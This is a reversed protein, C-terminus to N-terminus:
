HRCLSAQKNVDYAVKDVLSSGPFFTHTLYHFLVRFSIIFEAISFWRGTCYMFIQKKHAWQNKSQALVKPLDSYKRTNTLLTAAKHPDPAQFYGVNSEYM